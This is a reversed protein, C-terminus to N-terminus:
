ATNMAIYIQFCTLLHLHLIGIKGCAKATFAQVMCPQIYVQCKLIQTLLHLIGNHFTLQIIWLAFQHLYAFHCDVFKLLTLFPGDIWEELHFLRLQPACFDGVQVSHVYFHVTVDARLFIAETLNLIPVTLNKDVTLAHHELTSVAVIRMRHESFSNWNFTHNLIDQQHLAVVQISYAGTVIGVVWAHTGQIVVIADIRHVLSVHLAVGVM